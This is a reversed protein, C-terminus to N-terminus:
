RVANVVMGVLEDPDNTAGLAGKAKAERVHEPERSTSYIFYPTANGPGGIRELLTYGARSDGRRGMDSIIAAFPGSERIEKLAADTDRALVFRVGYPELARREWKNYDPNDDVWLIRRESLPERRSQAVLAAKSDPGPDSWSGPRRPVETGAAPPAIEAEGSTPEALRDIASGVAQALSMISKRAAPTDLPVNANERWDYMQRNALETALDDKAREEEKELKASTIFYIPLVLDDRDTDREHALFIRVEERCPESNFFLPSVMPVFFSSANLVEKLKKRWPEGIVIGEIDQFVRFAENGTVVQVAQELTKRFATVYGGFFEDDKRTYSLFAMPDTM